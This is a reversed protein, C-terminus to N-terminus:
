EIIIRNPLGAIKRNANRMYEYPNRNFKYSRRNATKIAEIGTVQALRNKGQKIRQQRGATARAQSSKNLQADKIAKRALSRKVLEQYTKKKGYMM